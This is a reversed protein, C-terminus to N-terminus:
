FGGSGPPPYLPLDSQPPYSPPYLPLNSDPSSPPSSPPPPYSSPSSSSPPPSYPPPYLSPPSSPPPPYSSPSSSSPPPSYPPPYLSPPSSPPPPYSSPSSSSPPPSYPPPSSPPLPSSPSPPYLSEPPPPSSSAPITGCESIKRLLCLSLNKVRPISSGAYTQLYDLVNQTTIVEPNQLNPLLYFLTTITSLVTEECASSLCGLILPLGENEEIVQAIRPDICCNCLGGIAFQVLKSNPEDLCDLFLDIICLSLFHDYNIPDYAFNGLNALIQEKAEENKSDQMLDQFETVLKQLYSFRDSSRSGTRYKLQTYTSFM